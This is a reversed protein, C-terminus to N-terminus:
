KGCGFDICGRRGENGSFGHKVDTVSFRKVPVERGHRGKQETNWAVPLSLGRFHLDLGKLGTLFQGQNDLRTKGMGEGCLM